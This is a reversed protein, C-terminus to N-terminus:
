KRKASRKPKAANLKVPEGQEPAAARAKNAPKFEEFVGAGASQMEDQMVHVTGDIPDNGTTDSEYEPQEFKLPATARDEAM